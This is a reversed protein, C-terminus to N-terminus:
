SSIKLIAETLADALATDPASPNEPVSWLLM